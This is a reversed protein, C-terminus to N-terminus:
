DLDDNGYYNWNRYNGKRRREVTALFCDPDIEAVPKSAPRIIDLQYALADILDDHCRPSPFRLLETELENMGERLFIKGSEFRPQLAEIRLGKRRGGSKLPKVIPYMGREARQDEFEHRLMEQFGIEEIGIIQCHFRNYFEFMFDITEKPLLRKRKYAAVYINEKYDVGCICIATYDNKDGIKIAPDVTMFYILDKPLETYYKFWKKQFTRHEDPLPDNMYEQAFAYDGMEKKRQILKDMSWQEPWLATGDKKIAQYFRTVWGHRGKNILEALFSENHLITGVVILQSEPKLTGLVDTWFWHDFKKRQEESVVMEDTELDDGIVVDPRFGRIQRGAGKGMIVSGNELEILDNTWKKGKGNDMEGYRKRLGMNNELEKRIAAVWYDSLAGTASTLLIKVGPNTLVLYLPYFFSFYSSKAFSRPAAVALRQNTILNCLERHFEGFIRKPTQKRLHQRLNLAIFAMFDM